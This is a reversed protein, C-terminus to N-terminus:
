FGGPFPVRRPPPVDLLYELRCYFDGIVLWPKYLPMAIHNCGLSANCMAVFAEGLGKILGVVFSREKSM